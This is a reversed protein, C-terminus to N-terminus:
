LNSLSLTAAALINISASNPEFCFTAIDFFIAVLVDIASQWARVGKKGLSRDDHQHSELRAVEVSRTDEPLLQIFLVLSPWCTCHINEAPAM